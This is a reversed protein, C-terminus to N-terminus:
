HIVFFKNDEKTVSIAIGADGFNIARRYWFVYKDKEATVFNPLEDKLCIVISTDKNKECSKEQHHELLLFIEQYDKAALNVDQDINIPKIAKSLQLCDKDIVLIKSDQPEKNEITTVGSYLCYNETKDISKAEFKYVGKILVMNNQLSKQAVCSALSLLGCLFVLASTFAPLKM